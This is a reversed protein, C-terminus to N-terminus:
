VLDRRRLATVGTWALGGAIVLLVLVPVAAFAQAPML